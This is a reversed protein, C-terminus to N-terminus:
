QRRRRARRHKSAGRRWFACGTMASGDIYRSYDEESCPEVRKQGRGARERLYQDFMERWARSHLRATSTVVGDMDFIAAGIRSLDLAAPGAM